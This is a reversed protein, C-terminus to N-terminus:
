GFIPVNLRRAMELYLTSLTIPIGTRREIVDNLFSNRPDYYNETNGHFGLTDFLVNNIRDITELPADGAQLTDRISEAMDDLLDIYPRVELQPYEENAMLLAAEALPIAGDPLTVLQQFTKRSRVSM